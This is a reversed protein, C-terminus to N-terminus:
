DRPPWPQASEIPSESINRVELTDYPFPEIFDDPHFRTFSYADWERDHKPLWIPQAIDWEKAIETMAEQLTNATITDHRMPRQKRYLTFWIQM